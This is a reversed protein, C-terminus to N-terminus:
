ARTDATSQDDVPLRVAPGAPNGTFEAMHLANGTPVWTFAAVGAAPCLIGTSAYQLPPGFLGYGIMIRNGRPQLRLGALRRDGPNMDRLHCFGPVGFRDCPDILHAAPQTNTDRIEGRCQIGAHEDYPSSD